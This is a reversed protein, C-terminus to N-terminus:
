NTKKGIYHGQVIGSGMSRLLVLYTGSTFTPLPNYWDTVFSSDFSVTNTTNTKIEMFVDVSYNAVDWGSGETFNTSGVLLSKQIQKSVDYSIATNGSISGLNFIPTPASIGKEVLM